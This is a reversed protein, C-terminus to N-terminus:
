SVPYYFAFLFTSVSAAAPNKGESTTVCIAGSTLELSTVRHFSEKQLDFIESRPFYYYAYPGSQRM